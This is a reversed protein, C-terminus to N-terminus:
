SEGGDGRATSVICLRVGGGYRVVVGGSAPVVGFRVCMGIVESGVDM